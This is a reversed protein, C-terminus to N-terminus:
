EQEGQLVLKEGDWVWEQTRGTEVSQETIIQGIALDLATFPEGTPKCPPNM